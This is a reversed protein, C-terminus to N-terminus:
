ARFVAESTWYNIFDDTKMTYSTGEWPDRIMLNGVVDSGDVVVMHSMTGTSRLVAAWSGTSNLTDILESESAGQITLSGGIWRRGNDAISLAASLDDASAPAGIAAIIGAQSVGAIGRTRALMEGCASVCSLPNDQQVAAVDPAERITPWYGGAGAL